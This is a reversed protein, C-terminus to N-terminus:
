ECGPVPQPMKLYVDSRLPQVRCATSLAKRCNVTACVSCRVALTCRSNAKSYTMWADMTTDVKQLYASAAMSLHSALAMPKSSYPRYPTPDLDHQSTFAPLSHQDLKLKALTLL